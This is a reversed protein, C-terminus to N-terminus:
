PAMMPWDTYDRDPAPLLRDAERNVTDDVVSATYGKAQAARVIAAPVDAGLERAQKAAFRRVAEDATHGTATGSMRRGAVLVNSLKFVKRM